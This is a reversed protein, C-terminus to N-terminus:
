KFLHARLTISLEMRNPQFLKDKMNDVRLMNSKFSTLHSISHAEIKYWPNYHHFCDYMSLQVLKSNCFKSNQLEFDKRFRRTQCNILSLLVCTTQHRYEFNRMNYGLPNISRKSDLINHAWDLAEAPLLLSSNWLMVLKRDDSVFTWYHYM